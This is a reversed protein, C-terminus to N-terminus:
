DAGATLEMEILALTRDVAGQGSKVLRLGARGMRDRTDPETFLRTLAAELAAGDTVEIAANAELLQRTIDAFNFTHPGVLVPRALAAPELVNHGGIPELSGGVFAIDGAAYYRLLEGMTDVVFCDADPPCAAVESRRAVSLGAARAADVARGFREPHRPVLVLLIDPFADRLATFSQLVIREENEHTSGAVLVRRQTGWATRISEGEDILGPPLRFDFKLNGSVTIRATPAGISELRRADTESQAIIHRVQRLAPAVLRQLRRYRGLSGESIRANVIMLPIGRAAAGHYTNPWIETELIIALAPQISSFFRELAGPLDFPSYAHYVSDGYLARARESGTPTFTTIFLPREPHKKKLGDILASAANVEGMSVAHVWIGGPPPRNEIRGFRESWRQRYGPSRLGRFFLYALVLPMSLYLLLSYLARM